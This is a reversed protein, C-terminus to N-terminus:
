EITVHITPPRQKPRATDDGDGTGWDWLRTGLHDAKIAIARLVVGLVRAATKVLKMPRM